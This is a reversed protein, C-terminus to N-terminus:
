RYRAARAMTRWRPREAWGIRYTSLRGSKDYTYTVAKGSAYTITSPRGDADLTIGIGNIIPPSGAADRTITVGDASILMRNTDYGTNITTGDSYKSQTVRGDANSTITLTGLPLTAGTPAERYSFSTSNGLPDTYKAPRELADYAIKWTNGNPTTM